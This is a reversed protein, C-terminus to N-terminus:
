KAHEIVLRAPFAKTGGPRAVAEFDLAVSKAFDWKKERTIIGLGRLSKKNSDAGAIERFTAAFVNPEGPKQLMGLAALPDESRLVPVDLVPEPNPNLLPSGALFARLARSEASNHVEPSISVRSKAWSLQYEMPKASKPTPITTGDITTSELKTFLRFERRFKDGKEETLVWSYTAIESENPSTQYHWSCTWKWSTAIIFGALLM